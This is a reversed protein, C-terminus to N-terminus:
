RKIIIYNRVEEEEDLKLIYYYTDEPLNKGENSQGYWDNNYSKNNYVLEGTRTYVQLEIKKFENLAEITFNQNSDDGNPSLLKPYKLKIREILVTDFASPCGPNSIEWVLTSVGVPLNRFETNAKTKDQLEISSNNVVIWKTFGDIQNLVPSASLNGSSSFIRQDEGAYSLEPKPILVIERYDINNCSEENNTVVWEIRNRGKQLSTNLIPTSDNLIRQDNITWYAKSPKNIPSAEFKYQSFIDDVCISDKQKIPSLIKAAEPENGRYLVISDTNLCAGRKTELNIIYKGVKDIEDFVIKNLFEGEANAPRITKPNKSSPKWHYIINPIFDVELEINNKCFNLNPTLNSKTRIISDRQITLTDFNSACALTDKRKYTYVQEVRYLFNRKGYNDIKVKPNLEKSFDFLKSEGERYWRPSGFIKSVSDGQITIQDSECLFIKNTPLKIKPPTAFKVVEVTSRSEQCGTPQIVWDFLNREVTTLNFAKAKTSDKSLPIPEATAGSVLEWKGKIGSSLASLIVTDSCTYIENNEVVAKFIQTRYISFTDESVCNGNSITYKIQYRGSQAIDSQSFMNNISTISKTPNSISAPPFITGELNPQSTIKWLYSSNKYLEIDPLQYGVLTDFNKCTFKNLPYAFITDPAKNTIVLEDTEKCGLNQIELKLTYKGPKEFGSLSTRSKTSDSNFLPKTAKAPINIVQWQYKLNQSFLNSNKAEVILQNTKECIEQDAGAANAINPQQNYKTITDRRICLPNSPNLVEWVLNLQATKELGSIVISDNAFRSTKIESNLDLIQWAANNYNFGQDLRPYNLKIRNNCFNSDQNFSLPLESARENTYSVTDSVRSCQLTRSVTNIVWRFQYLGPSKINRVVTNRNEADSFFPNSNDPKKIFEWIGKYGSTIQPASLLISDACFERGKNLTIPLPKLNKTTIYLSSVCKDYTFTYEFKYTGPAPFGFAIPIKGAIEQIKISGSPNFESLIRWSEIPTIPSQPFDKSPYPLKLSDCFDIDEAYVFPPHLQNSIFVTDMKNCQAITASKTSITYIFGYRGIRNLNKVTAIRRTSDEITVKVDNSPQSLVSWYSTPNQLAEINRDSGVLEFINACITTDKGANIISPQINNLVLLSTDSVCTPNERIVVWKFYYAGPKSLKVPSNFSLNSTNIPEANSPIKDVIWKGQLGSGSLNPNKANLNTTGCIDVFQNNSNLEALPKINNISILQSDSPCEGILSSKVLWWIDYTGPLKFNSVQINIRSPTNALPTIVPPQSLNNPTSGIKWEGISTAQPRNASVNVAAGCTPNIDSETTIIKALNRNQHITIESSDAGCITESVKWKFTYKGPANINYALTSSTDGNGIISTNFFAAQNTNALPQDKVYWQGISTPNKKRSNETFLNIKDTCIVSNKATISIDPYIIAIPKKNNFYITYSETNDTNRWVVISSGIPINNIVSAFKNPQEFVIGTNNSTWLGNPNTFNVSLKSCDYSFDCVTFTTDRDQCFITTSAFFYSICHFAICFFWKNLTKSQAELREM